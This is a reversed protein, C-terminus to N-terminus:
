YGYMSRRRVNTPHRKSVTGPTPLLPVSSRFRLHPPQETDSMLGASRLASDDPQPTTMPLEKRYPVLEVSSTSARPYSPEHSNSMPRYHSVTSFLAPLHKM